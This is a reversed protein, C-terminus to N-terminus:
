RRPIGRLFLIFPISFLLGMLLLVILDSPPYPAGGLFPTLIVIGIIGVFLMTLNFLLGTSITYGFPRKRWLLLGGLVWLPAVFFDAVMVPLDAAPVPARGSAHGALMLLARLGFLLGALLLLAAALREPVRGALRAQVANGDIAAVLAVLAYLGLVVIVLYLPFLGSFPMGFLYATYNYLSYLIAGPWFLLGLLQGRWALWLALLLIPLGVLLTLIDNALFGHGAEGAPYLAAPDLLGAISAIAVLLAFLLTTFTDPRLSRTAPLKSSPPM